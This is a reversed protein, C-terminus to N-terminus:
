LLHQRYSPHSHSLAALQQRLAVIEQQAAALSETRQLLRQVVRMVALVRTLAHSHTHTRTLAHAHTHRRLRTVSYFSVLM